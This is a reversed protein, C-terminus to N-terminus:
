NLYGLQELENRLDDNIHLRKPNRLKKLALNKQQIEKLKELMAERIEPKESIINRREEPDNSIDYLEERYHRRDIILKYDKWVLSTKKVPHETSSFALTPQLRGEIAPLLSVGQIDQGQIMDLGLFDLITPMIDINRVREKVRIGEYEGGPFLMILPIRIVEDYLNKSHELVGHDMLGEGHDSTIVLLTKDRLNQESLYDFLEELKRDTAMIEGDYFKRIMEVDQRFARSEQWDGRIYKLIKKLLKKPERIQSERNVELLKEYYKLYLFVLDDMDDGALDDERNWKDIIMGLREFPVRDFGDMCMARIRPDVPAYPFHMDYCHLFLFFPRDQNKELWQMAPPLIKHLRGTLNDRYVDFGRAFGFESRLLGSGCFGGTRYGSEKLVEAITVDSDALALDIKEVGHAPPYLSTFLSIHSPLTWPASSIANEFLVGRRALRDMNNSTPRSYGYCGLHDARLTDLSILIVNFAEPGATKKESSCGHLLVGFIVCCLFITKGHRM